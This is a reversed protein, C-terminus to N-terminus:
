PQKGPDLALFISFSSPSPVLYISLLYSGVVALMKRTSRNKNSVGKRIQIPSSHKKSSILGLKSSLALSPNNQNPMPVAMDM